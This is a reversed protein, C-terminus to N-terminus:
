QENIASSSRHRCFFKQHNELFILEDFVFHCKECTFGTGNELGNAIVKGQDILPEDHIAQDSEDEREQKHKEKTHEDRDAINTFVESCSTCDFIRIVIPDQKNAEIEKKSKQEKMTLDKNPNEEGHWTLNHRNLMIKLKFKIECIKCKIENDEEVDPIKPNEDVEVTQMKQEEHWKLHQEYKKKFVFKEACRDRKCRYTPVEDHQKLHHLMYKRVEKTKGCIGCKFVNDVCQLYKLYELKDEADRVEPAQTRIKSSGPEIKIRKLSPEQCEDNEEPVGLMESEESEDLPDNDSQEHHHTNGTPEASSKVSLTTTKPTKKLMKLIPDHDEDFTETVPHDRNARILMDAFPDQILPCTDSTKPVPHDGNARLLMGAFPDNTHDWFEQVQISPNMTVRSEAEATVPTSTEVVPIGNSISGVPENGVVEAGQLLQQMRKHGKLHIHYEIDHQHKALVNCLECYFDREESNHKTSEHSRRNEENRFSKDCYSCGFEQATDSMAVRHEEMQHCIYYNYSSSLKSCYQCDFEKNHNQSVHRSLYDRRHIPVDCIDCIYSLEPKSYKKKMYPLAVPTSEHMMRTHVKRGHFSPFLKGCYSCDFVGEAITPSAITEHTGRSSEDLFSSAEGDDLDIGHTHNRLHMRLARYTAFEKSCISCKSTQPTESAFSDMSTEVSEEKHFSTRENKVSDKLKKFSKMDFGDKRMKKALLDSKVFQIQDIPTNIEDQEYVPVDVVINHKEEMHAAYLHARDFNAVPCQDCKYDNPHTRYVHTRRNGRTTFRASCIECKFAKKISHTGFAHASRMLSPFTKNCALCKSMPKGPSNAYKKFSRFFKGYFQVRSLVADDPVDDFIDKTVNFVADDLNQFEVYIVNGVTNVNLWNIM